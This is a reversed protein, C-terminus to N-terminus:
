LQNNISNTSIYRYKISQKYLNVTSEKTIKLCSLCEDTNYMM